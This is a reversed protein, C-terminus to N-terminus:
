EVTGPTSIIFQRLHFQHCSTRQHISFEIFCQFRRIMEIHIRPHHILGPKLDGKLFYHSTHQGPLIQIFIRKFKPSDPFILRCIRHMLNVPFYRCPRILPHDIEIIGCRCLFHHNQQIYFVLGDPFKIRDVFLPDPQFCGQNGTQQLISNRRPDTGISSIQLCFCTEAQFRTGSWLLNTRQIFSQCPQIQILFCFM